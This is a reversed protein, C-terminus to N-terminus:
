GGRLSELARRSEDVTPALSSVTITFVIRDPTVPVRGHGTVTISPPLDTSANM